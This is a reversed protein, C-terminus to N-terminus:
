RRRPQKGSIRSGRIIHRLPIVDCVLGFLMVVGAFVQAQWFHQLRADTLAGAIPNGVLIGVAAGTWAMGLRSGIVDPSPCLYPLVAAPVSVLIGAFFGFFIAWVIIGVVSDVAIWALLGVGLVLAAFLLIQLPGVIDAIYGPIIRGFFNAANVIALIYFALDGMGQITEAFSTIYFFPVFYALFFFFGGATFLVFPLEKFASTDILRRSKGPTKPNKPLMICFSALFCGLATFGMVRTTWGFGLRPLLQRFMIPYVVGGPVRYATIFSESVTRNIIFSVL